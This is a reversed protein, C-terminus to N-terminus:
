REPPPSQPPSPSIATDGSMPQLEIRDVAASEVAITAKDPLPAIDPTAVPVTSGHPLQEPALLPPPQTAPFAASAPQASALRKSPPEDLQPKPHARRWKNQRSPQGGEVKEYEDSRYLVGQVGTSLLKIQDSSAELFADVNAAIWDRLETSSVGEQKEANDFVGSAFADRVLEAYTQKGPKSGPKEHSHNDPTGAQPQSDKAPAPSAPLRDTVQSMVADHKMAALSIEQTLM